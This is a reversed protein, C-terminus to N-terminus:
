SLLLHLGLPIGVVCLNLVFWLLFSAIVLIQGDRNEDSNGLLVVLLSIFYSVLELIVFGIIHGVSFIM